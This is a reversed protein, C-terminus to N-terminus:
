KAYNTINTVNCNYFNYVHQKNTPAQEIIVKTNQFEETIQKKSNLAHELSDSMERKRKTNQRVYREVSKGDKHGSVSAIDCASFGANQLTSVCGVRLSHNTYRKSCQAKECILPLIRGLFDKGCKEKKSYWTDMRTLIGTKLPLPYLPGDGIANLYLELRKIPCSDPNEPDDYLRGESLNEFEKQRLSAKVNKSLYNVKIYAYKRGSADEQIEIWSKLMKHHLERGRLGLKYALQFWVYQQLLHPNLAGQFYRFIKNLDEEEIGDFKKSKKGNQISKGIKCKLMKNARFFVKDVFINIHRNVSASTLYRHIAARKGILTVPAYDTGDKKKLSYYYFRLYEALITTPLTEINSSLNNETLFIKLHKIENSTNWATTKCQLEEEMANMEKITEEDLETQEHDDFLQLFNPDLENLYRENSANAYFNLEEDSVGSFQRNPVNEYNIFAM